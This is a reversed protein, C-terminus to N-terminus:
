NELTYLINSLGFFGFNWLSLCVWTTTNIHQQITCLCCVANNDTKNRYTKYNKPNNSLVKNLWSWSLFFTSLTNRSIKLYKASDGNSKIRPNDQFYFSYKYKLYYILFCKLFASNRSFIWNQQCPVQYLNPMGNLIKAINIM